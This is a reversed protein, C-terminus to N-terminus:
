RRIIKPIIESREFKQWEYCRIWEGREKRWYHFKKRVKHKIEIFKINQPKHLAIEPEWHLIAVRNYFMNWSIGHQKCLKRWYNLPKDATFFGTWNKM